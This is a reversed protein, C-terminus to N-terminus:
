LGMWNKLFSLFDTFLESFLNPFRILCHILEISLITRFGSRLHYFNCNFGEILGKVLGKVLSKVLGMVMKVNGDSGKLIVFM